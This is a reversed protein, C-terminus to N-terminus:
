AVTPVHPLIVQVTQPRLVNQRVIAIVRAALRALNKRPAPTIMVGISVHQTVVKAVILALVARILQRVLFLVLVANKKQYHKTRWLVNSM